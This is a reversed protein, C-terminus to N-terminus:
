HRGFKRFVALLVCIIGAIIVVGVIGWATSTRVTARFLTDVSTQDNAAKVTFTYDGSVANKAPTVNMTVTASQGAPLSAIAEEPFEVTWDSPAEASLNLNELDINGNNTVTLSVAKKRNSNCEFSVTGDTTTVTTSYTGTIKVNLTTSLKKSGASATVPIKYDGAEVTEPPTIKVAVEASDHAKVDISSVNTSSGSPSFAVTWGDPADASLAYSKDESGTNSITSNFSFDTKSDGEQSDYDTTLASATTSDSTVNLSLTLPESGGKLTIEYSGDEASDPVTVSYSALDDNDGAKAFVSTIGNGNGEFQGTWGDPLGEASLSVAEGKSGYNEFDLSFTATAGPNVSIGPYDTSMQVSGAAPASAQTDTSEAAETQSSESTQAKTDAAAPLASCFLTGTLAACAAASVALSKVRFMGTSFKRHEM